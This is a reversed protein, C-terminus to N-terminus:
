SRRKRSCVRRHRESAHRSASAMFTRLAESTRLWRSLAAIQIIDDAAM